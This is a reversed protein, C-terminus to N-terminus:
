VRESSPEPIEDIWVMTSWMGTRGQEREKAQWRTEFHPENERGGEVYVDALSIEHEIVDRDYHGALAMWIRDSTSYGGGDLWGEIQDVTANPEGELLDEDVTIEYAVRFEIRIKRGPELPLDRRLLQEPAM